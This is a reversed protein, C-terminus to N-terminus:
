KSVNDKSWSLDLVDGKHGYFEHVPKERIRFVKPPFIVCASNKTKKLTKVMSIKQKDAALPALESLNNVTFYLCSPDVDPVDKEDLREDEVVQWVRVVADEGASALYRGDLSFKMTLISGKHAQIDQGVFMASLEKLKKNSQHVKVRQVKEVVRSKLRKQVPKCAMSRLSGLLQSKVRSMTRSMPNGVKINRDVVKQVMPAPKVETSKGEDEEGNSDQIRLSGSCSCSSSSSDEEQEEKVAARLMLVAGSTQVVRSDEEEEVSQNDESSLGMFKLFTNKRHHVSEPAMAWVDYRFGNPVVDDDDDSGITDRADFFRYEDEECLSGM